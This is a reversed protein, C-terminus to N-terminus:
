KFQMGYKERSLVWVVGVELVLAHLKAPKAPLQPLLPRHVGLRVARTSEEVLVPVKYGIVPKRVHSPAAEAVAWTLLFSKEHSLAKNM